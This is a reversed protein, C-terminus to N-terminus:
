VDDVPVSQSPPKAIARAPATSCCPCMLAGGTREGASDHDHRRKRHAHAPHVSHATPRYEDVVAALLQVSQGAPLNPLVSPNATAVHLPLQEAPYAHGAADMMDLAAPFMQGIPRYLKPPALTHTSQGAPVNKHPRRAALSHESPAHKPGQTTHRMQIRSPQFVHTQNSSLCTHRWHPCPNLPTCRCSRRPTRMGLRTLPPWGERRWTHMPVTHPPRHSPTSQSHPPATRWHAPLYRGQRKQAAHTRTRSRENREEPQNRAYSHEGITFTCHSVHTHKSADSM